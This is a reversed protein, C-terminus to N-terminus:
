NAIFDLTLAMDYDGEVQDQPIELYLSLALSFRGSHDTSSSMLTIPDMVTDADPDFNSGDVKYTGSLNLNNETHIPATIDEAGVSNAAYVIGATNNGDLSTDLADLATSDPYSTVAYLNELPITSIGDTIDSVSLTLDFGGSNRFDDVTIIDESGVTVDVGPTAPNDNSFSPQLITTKFKTPFSLSPPIFGASLTGPYVEFSLCGENDDLLLCPSNGSEGVKQIYVRTQALGSPTDDAPGIYAVVASGEALVPTTDDVLHVMPLDKGLITLADKFDNAATTFKDDWYLTGDAGVRQVVPFPRELDPRATAYQTYAFIAGGAGDPIAATGGFTDPFNVKRDDFATLRNGSNIPPPEPTSTGTADIHYQRIVPYSPVGYGHIVMVIAGGTGDSVLQPSGDLTTVPPVIQIGSGGISPWLKQGASNVKQVKFVEDGSTIDLFRMGVIIGGSGDEIIPSNIDNIHDNVPDSTVLPSGGNWSSNVSGDSNLQHIVFDGSNSSPNYNAVTAYFGGIASNLSNVVININTPEVTPLTVTRFTNSGGTNWNTNLTGSGTIRTIQTIAPPSANDRTDWAIYVGGTGDELIRPEMEIATLSTGDTYINLGGPLSPWGAYPSGNSQLRQLYVEIDSSDDDWAMWVGGDVHPTTM